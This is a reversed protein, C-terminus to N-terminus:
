RQEDQAGAPVPGQISRMPAPLRAAAPAVGIAKVTNVLNREAMNVLARGQPTPNRAQQELARAYKAISSASAPSALVRAAVNGAVAGGVATATAGPAFHGGVIGALIGSLQQFATTQGTGSPNGYKGKVDKLRQAILALDDLSKLHAGANGFLVAKAQPTIKGWDRAFLDLSFGGSQNQGLGRVIAGAIDGKMDPPLDRVLGALAKVDGGERTYGEITKWLAEDKGMKGGIVRDALQQTPGKEVKTAKPATTKAADAVLERATKAKDLTDAHRLMLERSGQPFVKGALDRGSRHVFERIDAAANKSNSLTDWIAGRISQALEPNNGTAKMVGDYLRSTTGQKGVKGSGVLWNAVEQPTVDKHLIKQVINNVDDRENYGFRERWDRNADRAKRFNALAEPDGSLLASEFADSQWKDFQRMVHSAARRDADNSAASRLFVLRKRAQEIEQVSVPPKNHGVGVRDGPFDSRATVPSENDLQRIAKEVAEDPGLREDEMIKLTRAKVEPGMQGHGADALDKELGRRFASLEARAREAAATAERSTPGGGAGEPFRKNGRMEADLADLLDNVTSTGKHDGRLYGAEEAAERAADLTWGGQKVLRRRGTGPVDVLHRDAGIAGLEADPGLGGKSALFETLSQGRPAEAAATAPKPAQARPPAAAPEAGGGSLREIDSLMRSAAPTLLPDLVVGEEDLGKAVRAHAGSVEDGRVSADAEGARKYLAEKNAIAAAEAERLADTVQAGTDQPNVRGTRAEVAGASEAEFAAIRANYQDVAAQHAARAAEDGRAAAETAARTEAAAAEHLATTARGAANAETATGRQAALTDRAGRIQAPVTDHIATALPDGVVPTNSVGQGIRQVTTNDSTIARPADVDIGAARLREM